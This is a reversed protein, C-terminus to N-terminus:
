SKEEIGSGYCRPCKMTQTIFFLFGEGTCCRCENPKADPLVIIRRLKQELIGLQGPNLHTLKLLNMFDKVSTEIDQKM